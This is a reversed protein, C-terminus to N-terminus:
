AKPPAVKPKILCNEQAFARVSVSYDSSAASSLLEDALEPSACVVFCSTDNQWKLRYNGADKQLAPCRQSVFAHLDDTKLEASFDHLEVTCNPTMPLNPLNGTKQFRPKAQGSNQGVPQSQSTTGTASQPGGIRSMLGASSGRFMGGGPTKTKSIAQRWGGLSDDGGAPATKDDAVPAAAASAFSGKPMSAMAPAAASTESPSELALASFHNVACAAAQKDKSQRDLDARNVM